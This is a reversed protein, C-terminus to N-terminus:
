EKSPAAPPTAPPSASDAARRPKVLQRFTWVVLFIAFLTIVLIPGPPFRNLSTLFALTLASLTGVTGVLLSCAMVSGFRRSIMTATAGPIITMATIMLFGVMRVGIVIVLTIMLLLLVNIFRTPVGNVRAMEEDLTTYLFEYYFLAVLTFCAGATLVAMLADIRTVSMFDGFLLQEPQIARYTGMGQLLYLRVNLLLDGLAVSAVLFIGISSDESVRRSRAFYGILLATLLCFVGTIIRQSIEGQLTPILAAAVVAVGLGGFGAHAIGESILAMRRLVVYTSLLSCTAAILVGVTFVHLVYAHLGTIQTFLNEM